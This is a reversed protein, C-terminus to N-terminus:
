LIQHQPRLQCKCTEKSMTVVAYMIRPCRPYYKRETHKGNSADYKSYRPDQGDTLAAFSGLPKSMIVSDWIRNSGIIGVNRRLCSPSELVKRRASGTEGVQAVCETLHTGTVKLMMAADAVVPIHVGQNLREDKEIPNNQHHM